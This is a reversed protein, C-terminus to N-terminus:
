SRSRMAGKRRMTRPMELIHLNGGADQALMSRSGLKAFEMSTVATSAVPAAMSPKHSQDTLDWIEIAGDARPIIVGPRTLGM